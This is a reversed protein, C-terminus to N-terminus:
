IANKLTQMFTQWKDPTDYLNCSAIDGLSIHDESIILQILDEQQSQGTQATATIEEEQPVEIDNGLEMPDIDMRSDDVM